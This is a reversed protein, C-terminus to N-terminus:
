DSSHDVKETRTSRGELFFAVTAGVGFTIVGATGYDSYRAWRRASDLDGDDYIQKARVGLGIAAGLSGAAVAALVWTAIRRRGLTRYETLPALTVRADTTMGPEIQVDARFPINGDQAIELRHREPTMALPASVPTRGVREGDVRVEAGERDARLVLSGAAPNRAAERQAEATAELVAIKARVPEADPADVRDRLYRRYSEAAPGYQHLKEQARAINFWLDASPVLVAAAEFEAISDQYREAEYYELGTIFHQRAESARDAEEQASPAPAFSEEAPQQGLASSPGGLSLALAAAVVQFAVNRASVLRPYGVREESRM